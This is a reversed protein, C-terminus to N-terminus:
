NSIAWALPAVSVRRPHPSSDASRRFCAPESRLELSMQRKSRQRGGRLWRVVEHVKACTAGGQDYANLFGPKTVRSGAGIGDARHLADQDSVYGPHSHGM